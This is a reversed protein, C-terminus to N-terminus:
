IDRGLEEIQVTIVNKESAKGEWVITESINFFKRYESRIVKIFAVYMTENYKMETLSFYFFLSVVVYISFLGIIFRSLGFFYIFTMHFIFGLGVFLSVKIFRPITLGLLKTRTDINRTLFRQEEM